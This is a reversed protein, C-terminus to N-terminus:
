PGRRLLQSCAEADHPQGGDPVSDFFWWRLVEGEEVDVLLRRGLVTKRDAARVVSATTLKERLDMVRTADLNAMTQGKRLKERAVTVRAMPWSGEQKRLLVNMLNGFVLGCTAAGLGGSFVLVAIASRWRPPDGKPPPDPSISRPQSHGLAKQVKV